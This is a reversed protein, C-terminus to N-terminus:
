ARWAAVRDNVLPQHGRLWGALQKAAYLGARANEAQSVFDANLDLAPVVLRIAGSKEARELKMGPDLHEAFAQTFEHFRTGMGEFQLDVNGHAVTGLLIKHILQVRTPLGEPYFNIFGSRKGRAGPEDMRLEPAEQRAMEWYGKWFESVAKDPTLPYGSFAKKIAAELLAVKYSRRPGLTDQTLFWNRLSEYTLKKDFSKLAQPNSFYREPAILVTHFATCQGQDVYSRGRERYRAAQRPQFPADIKNEILFWIEGQRSAFGVELDSEGNSEMVSCCARVPAFFPCPPPLLQQVFWRQFDTSVSLEELLLLTIDREYVPGISLPITDRV